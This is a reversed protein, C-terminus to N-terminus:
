ATVDTKNPTKRRKFNNSIQLQPNGNPQPDKAGPTEHHIMRTLFM